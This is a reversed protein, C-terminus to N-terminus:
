LPALYYNTFIVAFSWEQKLIMKKYMWEVLGQGQGPDLHQDRSLLPLTAEVQAKIERGGLGPDSEPDKEIVRAVEQPDGLAARTGHGVAAMFDRIIGPHKYVCKYPAIVVAEGYDPIGLNQVKTIVPQAGRAELLAGELNWSGGFIADAKGSMLASVLGYGVQKVKVDDLSLGARALASELFSKQFSPGPVAITKGELDALGDIGSQKLWILAETAQSILAGFSVLEEEKERGVVVQPQQAVGLDDRGGAVYPVPDKPSSPSRVLVRLGADKFFGRQEAM